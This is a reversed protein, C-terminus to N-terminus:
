ATSVESKAKKSEKGIQDRVTKRIDNLWEAKSETCNGELYHSVADM